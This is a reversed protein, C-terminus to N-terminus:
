SKMSDTGFKVARPNHDLAGSVMPLIPTGTTGQSHEASAMVPSLNWSSVLLPRFRIKIM